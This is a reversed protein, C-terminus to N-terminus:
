KEPVISFQFSMKMKSLWIFTQSEISLTKGLLFTASSVIETKIIMAIKESM